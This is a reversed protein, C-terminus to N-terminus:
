QKYILFPIQRGVSLLDAGLATRKQTRPPNRGRVHSARPRFLTPIYPNLFRVCQDTYEIQGTNSYLIGQPYRM